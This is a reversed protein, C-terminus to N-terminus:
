ELKSNIGRRGNKSNPSNAINKRSMETGRYNKIRINPSGKSGMSSNGDGGGRQNKTISLGRIM